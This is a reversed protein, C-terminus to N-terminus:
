SPRSGLAAFSPSAHLPALDPDELASERLSPDLRVASAVHAVAAEHDGPAGRLALACAALYHGGGDEPALALLRRGAAIAGDLDRRALRERVLAFAADPSDPARAAWRELASLVVAGCAEEGALAGLDEPRELVARLVAEDEVATALHRVGLALDGPGNRNGLARAALLEAEPAEPGATARASAAVAAELAADWRGLALNAYALAVRARASTPDELVLAELASRAEEALGLAVRLAADKVRDDFSDTM